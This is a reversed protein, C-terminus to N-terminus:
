RRRLGVLRVPIQLGAPHRTGPVEGKGRKGYGELTQKCAVSARTVSLFGPM